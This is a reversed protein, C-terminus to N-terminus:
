GDGLKEKLLALLKEERADNLLPAIEEPIITAVQKGSKYVVINPPDYRKEATLGNAVLYELITM